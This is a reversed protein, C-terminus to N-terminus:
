QAARTMSYMKDTDNKHITDLVDFHITDYTTTKFYFFLIIAVRMKINGM